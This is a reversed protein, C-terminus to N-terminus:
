RTGIERILHEAKIFEPKKAVYISHEEDDEGDESAQLDDKRIKVCSNDWISSSEELQVTVLQDAEFVNVIM